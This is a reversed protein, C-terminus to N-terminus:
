VLQEVEWDPKVVDHFLIPCYKKGTGEEIVHCKSATECGTCLDLKDGVTNAIMLELVHEPILGDLFCDHHFVHDYRGKRLVVTYQM